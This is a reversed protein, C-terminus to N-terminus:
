RDWPLAPRNAPSHGASARDLGDGSPVARPTNRQRLQRFMSVTRLDKQTPTGLKTLDHSLCITPKQLPECLLPMWRARPGTPIKTRTGQTSICLPRACDDKREAEQAVNGRSLPPAQDSFTQPPRM